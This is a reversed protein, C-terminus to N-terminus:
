LGGRIRRALSMDRPMITVRKAHIACLNSDEMISVIYQEAAEHIAEVATKQFRYEHSISNAVERVFRYFPAKPILFDFSKQYRRIERLAVTGPRFRHPKAFRIDTVKKTRPKKVPAVINPRKGTRMLRVQETLSLTKDFRRATQKLRAM